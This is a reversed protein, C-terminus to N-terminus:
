PVPCEGRVMQALFAVVVGLVVLGRWALGVVTRLAM